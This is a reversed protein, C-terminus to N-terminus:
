QDLPEKTNLESLISSAILHYNPNIVYLMQLYKDRLEQIARKAELDSLDIQFSECASNTGFGRLCVLGKDCPSLYLERSCTGWPTYHLAKLKNIVLLEIQEDSMGGERWIKVKNGLFDPPEEGKKLYRERVYEAREKPTRYDYHRTQGPA